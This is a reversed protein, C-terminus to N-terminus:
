CMSYMKVSDIRFSRDEESDPWTASWTDQAKAFDYMATLSGDYWPKDGKNDPFWGSTGGAAVDIILYFPKDFPANPWSGEYPNEVVVQASGNQATEPFDGRTWFSEKDNRTRIELMANLRSDTYFRMFQSDWEFAYTHFGDALTGHKVSYWGYIKNMVSQLPGYNLSSRAYNRGQAPYEESNGRAEMIDIEGSVPWDGYTGNADVPLMWIAPWLWDGSPLKARVEVRGYTMEAKGKTNIRGSLVPNVVRKRDANAKVSCATKNSTTCDDGLDWSGGDFLSDYGGDISESTLTPHIYLNGDRVFVNDKTTIQFEGNGFGGLEIDYGWNDTNLDGSDFDDEMLLCLKSDPILFQSTYGRWCLIAAVGVGILLCAFTLWWSLRARGKGEDKLWPKDEKTLKQQLRTSPHPAPAKPLALSSTSSSPAAYSPPTWMSSGPRSAPSLFPTRFTTASASRPIGSLSGRPVADNLATASPSHRLNGAASTGYVGPTVPPGYMSNPNQEYSYPSFGSMPTPPTSTGSHMYPANPRPMMVIGEDGHSHSSSHHGADEYGDSPYGGHAESSPPYGHAYQGDDFSSSRNRSLGAGATCNQTCQGGPLPDPNGPHSQFPFAFSSPPPKRASDQRARERMSGGSAAHPMGASAAHPMNGTSGAHHMSGTSGVHPIGAHSMDMSRRRPADFQGVSPSAFQRVSPSAVNQGGEAYLSAPNWEGTTATTGAYGADAFPDGGAEVPQYSGSTSQRKARLRASGSSTISPKKSVISRVPPTTSDSDDADSSSSSGQHALFSPRPPALPADAEIGESGASIASVSSVSTPRGARQLRRGHTSSSPSLPSTPTTPRRSM